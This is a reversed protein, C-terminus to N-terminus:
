TPTSGSACQNYFNAGGTTCGLVPSTGAACRAINAAATSAVTGYICGINSSTSDNTASAASGTNCIKTTGGAPVSTGVLCLAVNATSGSNCVGFATLGIQNLDTLKPENYKM